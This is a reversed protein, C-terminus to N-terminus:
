AGQPSANQHTPNKHVHIRIWDVYKHYPGKRKQFVPYGQCQARLEMQVYQSLWQDHAYSGLVSRLDNLLQAWKADNKKGALGLESRIDEEKEKNVTILQAKSSM